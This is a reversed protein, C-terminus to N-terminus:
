DRGVAMMGDAEAPGWSGAAYPRPSPPDAQLPAFLRWSAEVEEAHVFLTQDGRVVDLLLTEYAEPLGGFQEAYRFHLPIQRLSLPSGPEKVDVHLSFGENPQLRIRLLNSTMLCSGMSEFLYVPARRFRVVIETLREKLRKGTRLLFPVGQWRWTDVELRLAVFTETHSEGPVGPEEHYSPVAEGDIQGARYQGFVVRERNLASARLVKIKEYRIADAEYAVPVEMAVLCLLQTLHNQVMDRLAGARDYYGARSEVGLSEAVMLEVREVHQRNWLSEFIANGFRFVLLNQVTDKGLYHDIRYIQREEFHKHVLENLAQASALDRGFPKEVVLRTYGRSRALGAEGLGTITGPFAGQPLALYYVRNGPLGHERELAQLRAALRAYDGPTGEGLPQYHMGACLPGAVDDPIAAESMSQRGIDAFSADTPEASRGVGLIRCGTPLRGTAALRGLAPLLKRRSLDGTGGFIVFLNPEM